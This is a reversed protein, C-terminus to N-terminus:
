MKVPNLSSVTSNLGILNPLLFRSRGRVSKDMPIIKMTLIAYVINILDCNVMVIQQKYSRSTAANLMNSVVTKAKQLTNKREKLSGAHNEELCIM